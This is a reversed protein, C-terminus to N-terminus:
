SKPQRRMEERLEGQWSVADSHRQAAYWRGTLHFLSVTPTMEIVDHSAAMVQQHEAFLQSTRGVPLAFAEVGELVARPQADPPMADVLDQLRGNSSDQLAHELRGIWNSLLLQALEVTHDDIEAETPTSALAALDVALETQLEREARERALVDEPTEEAKTQLLWRSLAQRAEAVWGEAMLQASEVGLADAVAPRLRAGLARVHQQLLATRRAFGAPDPKLEGRTRALEAQLAKNMISLTGAATADTCWRHIM